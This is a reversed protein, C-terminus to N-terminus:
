ETSGSAAYFSTSVGLSTSCGRGSFFGTIGVGLRLVPWARAASRGKEATVARAMFGRSTGAVALAGGSFLCGGPEGLRSSSFSQGAVRGDGQGHL